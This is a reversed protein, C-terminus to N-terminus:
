YDKINVSVNYEKMMELIESSIKTTKEIESDFNYSMLDPSCIEIPIGRTACDIAANMDDAFDVAKDQSSEAIDLLRPTFSLIMLIVVPAILLEKM